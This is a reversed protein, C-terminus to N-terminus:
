AVSASKGAAILAIMRRHNDWDGTALRKFNRSLVAIWRTFEISNIRIKNLSLLRVSCPLLVAFRDFQLRTQAGAPRTLKGNGKEPNASVGRTSLVGTAKKNLRCRKSHWGRTRNVFWSETRHQRDYYFGFLWPYVGPEKQQKPSRESVQRYSFRGRIHNVFVRILAIEKTSLGPLM